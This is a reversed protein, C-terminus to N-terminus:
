FNRGPWLSGGRGAARTALIVPGNGKATPVPYVDAGMPGGRVLVSHHACQVQSGVFYQGRGPRHAFTQVEVTGYIGLQDPLTQRDSQLGGGAAIALGPLEHHDAIRGYALLDGRV